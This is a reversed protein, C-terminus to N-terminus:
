FTATNKGIEKNLEQPMKLSKASHTPIKQSYSIADPIRILRFSSQSTRTDNEMLANMSIVCCLIHWM